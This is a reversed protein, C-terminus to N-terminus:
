DEFNLQNWQCVIVMLTIVLLDTSLWQVNNTCLDSSVLLYKLCNVLDTKPILLQLFKICNNSHKIYSQRVTPSRGFCTPTLFLYTICVLPTYKSLRVHYHPLLKHSALKVENWDHVDASTSMQEGSTTIGRGSGGRDRGHGHITSNNCCWICHAWHMWGVKLGAKCVSM